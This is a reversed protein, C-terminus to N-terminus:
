ASIWAAIPTQLRVIGCGFRKLSGKIFGKSRFVLVQARSRPGQSIGDIELKEAERVLKKNRRYEAIEICFFSKILPLEWVRARTAEIRIRGLAGYAM